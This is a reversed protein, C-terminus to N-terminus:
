EEIPATLPEGPTSRSWGIRPEGDVVMILEDYEDEFRAWTEFDWVEDDFVAVNEVVNNKILAIDVM